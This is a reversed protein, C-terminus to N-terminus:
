RLEITIAATTGRGWVFHAPCSPAAATVTCGGASGARGAASLAAASTPWVTTSLLGRHPISIKVVVGLRRTTLTFRAIVHPRPTRYVATFVAHRGDGRVASVTWTRHRGDPSEINFATSLPSRLPRLALLDHWAGQDYVKIALLGQESRRDAATTRASLAWWV